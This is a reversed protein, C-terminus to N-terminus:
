CAKNINITSKRDETQFCTEYCDPLDYMLLTETIKLNRDPLSDSGRAALSEGEYQAKANSGAIKVDLGNTQIDSGAIEVDADAVLM